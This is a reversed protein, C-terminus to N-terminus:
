FEVHIHDITGPGACPIAAGGRTECTAGSGFGSDIRVGSQRLAEVADRDYRIDVTAVGPGHSAHGLETGGSVVISCGSIRRCEEQTRLLGNIAGQGLNTLCTQSLQRSPDVCPKNITIGAAELIARIEADSGAGGCDISCYQPGGPLAEGSDCQGNGCLTPPPPSGGSGPPTTPLIVVPLTTNCTELGGGKCDPPQYWYKLAGNFSIQFGVVSLVVNMIAWAFFALAMGVVAGTIAHKGRSLKNESGGSTLLMVGGYLFMAAGIPVSLSFLLFDMVNKALNYLDCLSCPCGEICNEPVLSDPVTQAALQLPLISLTLLVLILLRKM